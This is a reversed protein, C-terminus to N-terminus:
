GNTVEMVVEALEVLATNLEEVNQYVDFLATNIENEEYEWHEPRDDTAEIHKFNRRVYIISASSGKEVDLPKTAEGNESKRWM